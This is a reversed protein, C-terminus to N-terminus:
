GLAPGGTPEDRRLRQRLAGGLAGGMIGWIAAAAAVDLIKPGLYVHGVGLAGGTVTLDVGSFWATVAALPAFMVGAVAGVAAASRYGDAGSVRAAVGGGLLVATPAVVAFIILVLPVGELIRPAPVQELNPDIADDSVGSPFRARCVVDVELEDKGGYIGACAGMSASLAWTAENPMFAANNAVAAVGWDAKASRFGALYVRSYEPAVAALLVLALFAVAIGFALMAWAGALAGATRRRWGEPTREAAAWQAGALTPVLCLILPYVVTTPLTAAVPGLASDLPWILSSSSAAVALAACVAGASGAKLLGDRSGRVRGISRGVRFLLWVALATGLMPAAALAVSTGQGPPFELSTELGVRFFSGLYVATMKLVDPVSMGGFAISNSLALVFAAVVILLFAVAGRSLAARWGPAGDAPAPPENV